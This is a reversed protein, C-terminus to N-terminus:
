VLGNDAAAAAAAAPSQATLDSCATSVQARTTRATRLTSAPQATPALSLGLASPDCPLAPIATHALAYAPDPDLVLLCACSGWTLQACATPQAVICPAGKGLAPFGRDACVVIVWIVSVQLALTLACSPLWQGLGDACLERYGDRLKRRGSGGAASWVRTLSACHQVRALLCAPPSVSSMSNMFIAPLVVIFSFFMLMRGQGGVLWHAQVAAVTLNTKVSPILLNHRM